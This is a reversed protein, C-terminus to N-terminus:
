PLLLDWHSQSIARLQSQIQRRFPYNVKRLSVYIFSSTVFLLRFRVFHPRTSTTQYGIPRHLRAGPNLDRDRGKWNAIM